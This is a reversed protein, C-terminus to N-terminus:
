QRGRVDHYRNIEPATITKKTGNVWYCDVQKVTDAMGLGFHAVPATQGRYSDGTVLVRKLLRGDELTLDVRM